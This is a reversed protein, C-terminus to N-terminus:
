REGVSLVLNGLSDVVATAGPDIVVTTDSQEVIAPGEEYPQVQFVAPTDIEASWRFECGVRVQRRPDM